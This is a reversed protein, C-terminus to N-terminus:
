WPQEGLEQVQEVCWPSLLFPARAVLLRLEEWTVWRHEAVEGPDPRVEDPEIRGVLVPCIENEVIGSADTARYRFDPLVVRLDRPRAGLEDPVRRQAAREASEGVGTHGCASNTWVGPWTRKHLSRRTLLVRGDPGVLYTSFARHLPTDTTHVSSRPMTGSDRGHEDVLVVVDDASATAGRMQDLLGRLMRQQVESLRGEGAGHVVPWGKELLRIGERTITIRTPRGRGREGDRVVLGREEAVSLVSALTQPLMASHRALEAPSSGPESLVQGLVLFLTPSLELEALAPAIERRLQHAAHVMACYSSSRILAEPDLAERQSRGPRPQQAVAPELTTATDM